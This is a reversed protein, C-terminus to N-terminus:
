PQAIELADVVVYSGSSAPNKTSSVALVLIHQKNELDNAITRNVSEPIPSYMDIVAYDNGDLEIDALGGEPSARYLLVAGTGTFSIAVKSGPTKSVRWAGGSANAHEQSEWGLSWTFSSHTEEMRKIRPPTANVKQKAPEEAMESGIISEIFEFIFKKIIDLKTRKEEKVPLTINEPKEQAINQSTNQVVNEQMVQPSPQGIVPRNSEIKHWFDEKSGKEIYTRFDIFYGEASPLAAGETLPISVDYSYSYQENKDLFINNRSTTGNILSANDPLSDNIKLSVRQDGVHKANITVTANITGNIQQNIKVDKTLIVEAGKLSVELDNSEVSYKKGDFDFIATAKPIKVTEIYKTPKISYSVTDSSKAPITLRWNLGENYKPRYEFYDPVSDTLNVAIEKNGHNEIHIYVTFPENMYLVEDSKGETDTYNIYNVQKNIEIFPTVIFQEETQFAYDVNKNDRGSLRIPISFTKNVPISPSLARLTINMAGNVKLDNLDYVISNGVQKFSM